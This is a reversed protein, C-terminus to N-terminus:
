EKTGIKEPPYVKLPDDKILEIKRIDEIRFVITGKDQEDEYVYIKNDGWYRLSDLQIFGHNIKNNTIKEYLNESFTGFYYYFQFGENEEYRITLLVWLNNHHKSFIESDKTICSEFVLILITLMVFYKLKSLYM